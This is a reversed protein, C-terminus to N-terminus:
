TKDVGGWVEPVIGVPNEKGTGGNKGQDAGRFLHAYKGPVPEASGVIRGGASNSSGSSSSNGNFQGDKRKWTRVAARWDRMPARGVVWGKSEYFDVFSGGNLTFGISLAYDQVEQTTPKVFNSNRAPIVKVASDVAKVAKVVEKDKDKDKDKDKIMKYHNGLSERIIPIESHKELLLRAAVVAPKNSNLGRPYQHKVFTPIFFFGGCEFVKDKFMALLKHEDLQAHCCYNLMTFEKRIMGAIDCNDILWQYVIRTDNNISLYWDDKWKETDTFRKAM